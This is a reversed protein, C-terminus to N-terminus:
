ANTRQDDDNSDERTLRENTGTPLVAPYPRGQLSPIGTESSHPKLKNRAGKVGELERVFEMVDDVESRFIDGSVTVFGNRSSIRLAGPNSVLGSDKLADRIRANLSRDARRPAAEIQIILEIYAIYALLGGFALGLSWRATRTAHPFFGRRM